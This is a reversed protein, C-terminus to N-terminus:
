SDGDFADFIIDGVFDELAEQRYGDVDVLYEIGQRIAERAEDVNEIVVPM